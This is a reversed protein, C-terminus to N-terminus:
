REFVKWGKGVAAFWGFLSSSVEPLGSATETIHALGKPAIVTSPLNLAAFEKFVAGGVSGMLKTSYQGTGCAALVVTGGQYGAQAFSSALAKADMTHEGSTFKGKFGYAALATEFKKGLLKGVAPYDQLGHGVFVVTKAGALTGGNELVIAGTPSMTGLLPKVGTKALVSSQLDVAAFLAISDEGYGVIVDPQSIARMVTGRDKWASYWRAGGAGLASATALAGAGALLGAATAEVREDDSLAHGDFYDKGTWAEYISRGGVPMLLTAILPSSGNYSNAQAAQLADQSYDAYTSGLGYGFMFAGALWGIPGFAALVVAGAYMSTAGMVVHGAVKAAFTAKKDLWVAYPAVAHALWTKSLWNDVGTGQLGFYDTMSGPAHHAYHYVNAGDAFGLPDPQLFRGLAPHYARTLLHYIPSAGDELYGAFGLPVPWSGSRTMVRGFPDYESRAAVAGDADVWAVISDMLDFLPTFERGGIAVHAVQNPRELPVLQCELQGDRHWELPRTNAYILDRVGTATAMRALRGLADRELRVRGQPGDVQALRGLADYRYRRVGDDLLNGRADHHLQAAGVQTYRDHRDPTYLVTVAPEAPSSTEFTHIRNGSADLAYAFSRRAPQALAAQQLASTVRDVDGQAPARAQANAPPALQAVDAIPAGAATDRAAILRAAPDYDFMRVRTDTQHVRLEGASGFLNREVMLAAGDRQRTWDVGLVRSDAGYQLRAVHSEGFHMSLPRMGIRYMRLLSRAAPAVPDGPYGTGPALQAIGLLVGGRSHSFQLVRGNPYTLSLPRSGADYTFRVVADGRREEIVRGLSDYRFSCRAVANQALTEGLPTYAYTSPSVEVPAYDPQGPPPAFADISTTTGLRRGGPSYSHRVRVGNPDLTEALSGRADHIFRDSAGDDRAIEVVRNLADHRYRTHGGSPTVIQVANGNADFETATALQVGDIAQQTGILQGFISYRNHVVRGDAGIVRTLLGRSDHEYRTINGLADTTELPLGRVDHRVSTTFVHSIERGDADIGREILRTRITRTVDDYQTRTENGDADRHYIRRGLGDYGLLAEAGGADVVRSLRGAVDYFFHERLVSDAEPAPAQDPIFLHRTREIMRGAADYRCAHEAFRLRAGTDPHLGFLQERTLRGAADYERLQEDGDASRVRRLRGFADYEYTTAFGLADLTAILEGARNYRRRVTTADASGDGQTLARLNMRADYDFRTVNGLADVTTSVKGAPNYGRRVVRARPDAAPGACQEILRGYGDHRDVRVLSGDPHASGDAEFVSISTRTLRRARDYHYITTPRPGDGNGPLLQRVVADFGNYETDTVAGRVDTTRTVRGLADVEFRTSLRAGDADAILERVFGARLPDDHYVIACRQGGSSAGTPLGRADFTYEVTPLPQATGDAQTVEPQRTRLLNGRADYDLFAESVAQGPLETLQLDAYFPGRQSALRTSRGLAALPHYAFRTVISRTEGSGPRPRQVVRLVNGFALREAPSAGDASGHLAEYAERATLYEFIEGGARQEHILTGDANYRYRAEIIASTGSESLVNEFRRVVNGQRNFWHEIVHANPYNVRTLRLPTNIPDAAVDEDAAFVGDYEYRFEGEDSRQRVVRNFSLGDLEVGYSNEVTTEGDPNIIQTLNHQLEQPYDPGLYRYDIGAVFGDDTLLDVELLDGNDTYDYRYERRGFEDRLAILRNLADYRFSFRKGLPDTARALLFGDYEFAIANGNPDVIREVYLNDGYEVRVGDRTSLTYRGGVKELREFFGPPGEFEADPFEGLPPLEGTAHTVVQTYADERLAGNSRHVVNRLTGDPALEQGERLWLNYSHDWCFGLPGYYRTQHLYTRTFTFGLGCGLVALDTVQYYFCGSALVIPDGGNKKDRPASAAGKGEPSGDPAGDAKGFASTGAASGGSTLNMDNGAQAQPALPGEGQAQEPAPIMNAPQPVPQDPPTNLKSADFVIQVGWILEAAERDVYRAFLEIIKPDSGLVQKTLKLRQDLPIDNENLVQSFFTGLVQEAFQAESAAEAVADTTVLRGALYNDVLKRAATLQDPSGDVLTANGESDIAILVFHDGEVAYGTQKSGM